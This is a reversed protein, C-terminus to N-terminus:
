EEKHYVEKRAEDAVSRVYRLVKPVAWLLGILLPIFAQLLPIMSEPVFGLHLPEVNVIFPVKPTGNSHTTAVGIDVSRVRAYKMRTTSPPYSSNAPNPFRAAVAEPDLISIAFDVPYFAAWSVRFTFKSFTRWKDDDLDLKFWIENPCSSPATEECVAALPTNLPAPIIEARQESTRPNFSPWTGSVSINADNASYANFNVIETNAICLSTLILSIFLRLLM